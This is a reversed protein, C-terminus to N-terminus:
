TNATKSKSSKVTKKVPKKTKKDGGALLPIDYKAPFSEYKSYLSASMDNGVPVIKNLLYDFSEGKVDNNINPFYTNKFDFLSTSIDNSTIIAPQCKGGKLNKSKNNVKKNKIAGGTACSPCDHKELLEMVADSAISGGKRNKNAVKVKKKEVM